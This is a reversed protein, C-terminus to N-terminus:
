NLKVALRGYVTLPEGPAIRGGYYNFPVFYREDTLNKVNLSASLWENEYGIKADATVYGETKYVNALDVYSGSSAYLGAGISWGLWEGGFRYNVWLRGSDPPVINLTNGSPATGPVDRTLEADVHAYNALFQWNWTPQWVLDIDFGRSRQEGIAQSTLGVAVPVGSRYIEFVAASGSLGYGLAVKVGGEVQRSEEPEPKGAYFVFPNAKLGETYSAFVSLGDIVDLVAGIRPLLRTTDTTDTRAFADSGSDIKLKTLRLGGLLHLRDWLTSQLQIQVGTTEYTNRGDAVINALINAPAVFPPFAPNTLDVLGLLVLDNFDALMYGKDTLRSYDAGVLLTNESPGASFKAKVNGNVSAEEQKQYLDINLLSWSSPALAPENAAFTLGVFNQAIERFETRSFRTQASASWVDDFTHDLKATVSHIKSYSRPIDSPGVFLERDLRFGGVLTGTAPLGQYDQQRWESIRGQIVLTTGGNGSLKLTPNISFRDTEIVDVFSNASTYDGTVRFAVAGDETIPQNLDFYPQFFSHSGFTLGAEYAAKAMPLKSVVNVVGGLPAGAGGGYLTANPGKLVEIREVNVLSDRNGANYFSTLGDLWQEARFGRITTSEFAPTQLPNTGQVSSVNRLAEDMTLSNQDDMVQRPIVQVSQPIREIPTETKTASTSTLARYGQVPGATTADVEPSDIPPATVNIPPTTVVKGQEKVQRSDQAHVATAALLVAAGIGARLIIRSM